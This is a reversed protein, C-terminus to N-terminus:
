SLGVAAVVAGILEPSMEFLNASHNQWKNEEKILTYPTNYMTLSVQQPSQDKIYFFFERTEIRATLRESKM